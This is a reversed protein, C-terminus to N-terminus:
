GLTNQLRARVMDNGVIEAALAGTLYLAGAVGFLLATLRPLHLLFPVFVPGILLAGFAAPIAWTVVIFSNISEHVGAVEDASMLLFGVALAYWCGSFPAGQSAKQRACIWLLASALLLLFQSFWTPLNNEQDVDFLQLWLWHLEAVRFHYLWLAAHCALLMLAVILLALSLGSSSVSVEYRPAERDSRAESSSIRKSGGRKRRAM